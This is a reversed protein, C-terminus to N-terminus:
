SAARNSYAMIVTESDSENQKNVGGNSVAGKKKRVKPNPSKSSPQVSEMSKSICQSYLDIAAVWDEKAFYHNGEARLAAIDLNSWHSVEAPISSIESLIKIDSVSNVYLARTKDLKTCLCPEKVTVTIAKGKDDEIVTQVFGVVFPELCLIGYLVPGDKRKEM